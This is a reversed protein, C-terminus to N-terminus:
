PNRRVSLVAEPRSQPFVYGRPLSSRLGVQIRWTHPRLSYSRIENSVPGSNRDRGYPARAKRKRRERALSVGLLADRIQSEHAKHLWKSLSGANM